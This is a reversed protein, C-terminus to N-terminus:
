RLEAKKQDYALVPPVAKKETGLLYQLLLFFILSQLPYPRDIVIRDTSVKFVFVIDRFCELEPYNKLILWSEGSLYLPMMEASYPFAMEVCIRRFFDFLETDMGLSDNWNFVHRTCGLHAWYDLVATRAVNLEPVTVMITESQEDFPYM